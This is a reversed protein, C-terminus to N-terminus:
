KNKANIEKHQKMREKKSKVNFIYINQFYNYPLEGM